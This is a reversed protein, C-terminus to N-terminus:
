ETNIGNKLRYYDMTNRLAQAGRELTLFTPIGGDRLKRSVERTEQTAEPSFLGLIVAVPKPSRRRIEILTNIDGELHESMRAGIGFLLVLNDVNADQELITMIRKM